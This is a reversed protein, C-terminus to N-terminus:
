HNNEIIDRILKVFSESPEIEPVYDFVGGYGINGNSSKLCPSIVLGDGFCVWIGDLRNDIDAEELETFGSMYIVKSKLEVADDGSLTIVRYGDEDSYKWILRAKGDFLDVESMKTTLDATSAKLSLLTGSLDTLTMDPANGDADASPADPIGETPADNIEGKIQAGRILSAVVSTIVLTFVLALSIGLVALRQFAPSSARVPRPDSAEFIFRDDIDGIADLLIDAHYKKNRM